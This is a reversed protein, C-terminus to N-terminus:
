DYGKILEVLEALEVRGHTDRNVVVVPALGCAGFCRIFELSYMRDETTEGDKIGLMDQLKAANQKGGKIYCATGLCVKIVHKGRPKISFFNYFTVVGYVESFPIELGESIRKQIDLPLYGLTEQVKQLVPILSGPIGRYNKLVQDVEELQEKTFEDESQTQASNVEQEM